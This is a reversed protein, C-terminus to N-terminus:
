RTGRTAGCWAFGRSQSTATLHAPVSVLRNHNGHAPPHIRRSSRREQLLALRARHDAQGHLEPVLAAQLGRTSSRRPRQRNDVGAAAAREVVGVVGAAHGVEEAEREVHDVELLAKLGVHHPGEDLAVQGALRGDGARQAVVVDLKVVQQRGRLLDASFPQGGAVVAAHTAVLLGPAVLQPERAVGAFVLGVKKEAQGLLLQRAGLKRQALQGLLLHARQRAALLERHGVLGFALLNAKDGAPVVDTKNLRIQGLLAAAQRRLLALHHRLVPLHQALVLAQVLKGDALPPSQADGGALREVHQREVTLVVSDNDTVVRLEM